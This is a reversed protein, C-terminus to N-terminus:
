LTCPIRAIFPVLVWQIVLIAVLFSLDLGGMPPIVRRLPLLVPEVLMAVYETWKGRLSPVWSIIAYVLMIMVYIQLIKVLAEVIFCPM